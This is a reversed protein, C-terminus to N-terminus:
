LSLDLDVDEDPAANGAAQGAAKQNNCFPCVDLQSPYIEGCFECVKLKGMPAKPAEAAQPEPEAAITNQNPQRSSDNDCVDFYVRQSQWGTDNLFREQYSEGRAICFRGVVAAGDSLGSGSSKKGLVIKLGNQKSIVPKIDTLDLLYTQEADSDSFKIFVFFIRPTCALLYKIFSNRVVFKGCVNNPSVATVQLGDANQVWNLSDMIALFNTLFVITESSLLYLFYNKFLVFKKEVKKPFLM